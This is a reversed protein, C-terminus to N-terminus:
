PNIIDKNCTDCGQRGCTVQGCRLCYGRQIGSGPKIRWHIRCHCCCLTEGEDEIGGDSTVIEYGNAKLSSYKKVGWTM